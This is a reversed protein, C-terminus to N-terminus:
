KREGEKPRVKYTRECVPCRLTVWLHDGSGCIHMRRPGAGCYPCTTKRVYDVGGRESSRLSKLYPNTDLENM